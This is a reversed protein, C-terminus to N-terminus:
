KVKAVPKLSATHPGKTGLLEKLPYTSAAKILIIRQFDRLAIINNRNELHPTM